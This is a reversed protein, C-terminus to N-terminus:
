PNTGGKHGGPKAPVHIHLGKKRTGKGARRNLWREAVSAMAAIPGGLAKAANFLPGLSEQIKQWNEAGTIETERIDADAGALRARERMEEAQAVFMDGQKVNTNAQQEMLKTHQEREDVQAATNYANLASNVATAGINPVVQQQAGSPTSAGGLRASLIPNLGAARLDAVQRQHATDSMSKQFVMQKKASAASQRGQQIAGAASIAAAALPIWFAM